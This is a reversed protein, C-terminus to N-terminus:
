ALDDHRWPRSQRLDAFSAAVRLPNTAERGFSVIIELGTVDISTSAHVLKRLITRTSVIKSGNGVRVGFLRYLSSAM